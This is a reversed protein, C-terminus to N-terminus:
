ALPKLNNLKMTLFNLACVSPVCFKGPIMAPCFVMVFPFHAHDDNPNLLHNRACTIHNSKGHSYYSRDRPPKPVSHYWRNSKISIKILLTKNTVDQIIGVM